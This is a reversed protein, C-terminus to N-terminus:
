PSGVTTTVSIRGTDIDAIERGTITLNSTGVPAASFGLRLVPVDLVGPVTLAQAKFAVAFVDLGLNLARDGYTAAATKILDAGAAPFFSSDITVEYELWVNKVTARSFKVTRNVGTSDQVTVSTSGVTEVGAPKSDWIAQGIEANSAAPVNGDYVVVEISKGPLGNEDTTLTVNEFVYCQKVGEVQLVDVRIADVTSAGAATVEDDRRKRLDEDTEVFTGAIADSPNTVSNLGSVPATIVTLTTAAAQVPGFETCEFEIPYVGAPTLPGVASKNVFRVDPQGSVNVMIAGQACSFNNNVNSNLTVTSKKASERKSGTIASINDLLFNEAGNPNMANALTQMLEWLEAFKKAAIGNIQTLPQEASFDLAPDIEARQDSEIESKIEELTKLEFGTATLGAM